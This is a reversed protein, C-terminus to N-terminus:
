RGVDQFLPEQPGVQADDAVVDSAQQVDQVDAVDQTPESARTRRPAARQRPRQRPAPAGGDVHTRRRRERRRRDMRRQNWQAAAVGGRESVALGACQGSQEVRVFM